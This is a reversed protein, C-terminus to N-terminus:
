FSIVYIDVFCTDVQSFNVIVPLIHAMCDHPELLKGLTACGEVALLQVYDQDSVFFHLLFNCRTMCSPMSFFKNILCEQM